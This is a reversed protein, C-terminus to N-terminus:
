RLKATLPRIHIDFLTFSNLCLHIAEILLVDSSVIDQNNKRCILRKNSDVKGSSYVSRNQYNTLECVPEYLCIIASM